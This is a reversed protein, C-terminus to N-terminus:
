TWITPRLPRNPRRHPPRLLQPLPHRRQRLLRLLPLMATPVGLVAVVVVAAAAVVAGVVVTDAVAAAVARVVAVVM